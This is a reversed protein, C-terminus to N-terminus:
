ALIRSREQETLRPKCGSGPRICLGVVGEANFRSQHICVTQPHCGLEDAIENPTKGAWNSGVMQAHFKWDAPVHHSKALKRVLREEQM